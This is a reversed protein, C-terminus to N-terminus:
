RPSSRTSRCRAGPRTRTATTRAFRGAPPRTGRCRVSGSRRRAAPRAAVRGPSCTSVNPWQQPSCHPLEHPSSPRTDADLRQMADAMATLHGSTIRGEHFAREFSDADGASGSGAAGSGTSYSGDGAAAGCLEDLLEAGDEVDAAERDSRNGPGKLISTPADGRGIDALQRSRRVCQIEFADLWCRVQSASVILARLEDNDVALPDAGALSDLVARVDIPGAPAGPRSRPSGPPATATDHM